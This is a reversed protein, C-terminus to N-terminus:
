REAFSIVLRDEADYSYAAYFSPATADMKLVKPLLIPLDEVLMETPLRSVPWWELVGEESSRVDRQTTEATFVFFMIGVAPDGADANVVCRLQLDHVDLGTEEQVERRTATYIDEGAEVHGGVGNYRGAWLRKHPGGRLLLVESGRIVFCLTRPIVRYRDESKAVGQDARGM